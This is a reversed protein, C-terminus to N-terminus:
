YTLIQDTGLIIKNKYKKIMELIFEFRKILSKINMNAVRYIEGTMLKHMPTSIELFVLEFEGEFESELFTM